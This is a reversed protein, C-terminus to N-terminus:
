KREAKEKGQELAIEAWTPARCLFIRASGAILTGSITLCDGDGSFIVSGGTAKGGPSSLSVTKQLTTLQHFRTVGMGDLIALTLGDPSFGVGATALQQGIFKALEAGSTADWLRATTDWGATAILRDDPSFALDAVEWNHGILSSQKKQSQYDWIEVKGSPLAIALRTGRNSFTMKTVPIQQDFPLPVEQGNQTSWARLYGQVSPRRRTFSGKTTILEGGPAFRIVGIANTGTQFALRRRRNPLDWVELSGNEYGVALESGNSSLAGATISDPAEIGWSDVEHRAVPDWFSVVGNSSLTVLRTPGSLFGLAIGETKELEDPKSPTLDWLRVTSDRAGSVLIPSHPATALAWIGNAHGLLDGVRKGAPVSWLYLAEDSAGATILLQDDLSFGLAGTFNPHAQWSTVITFDSAKRLEVKGNSGGAAFWAGDSSFAMSDVRSLYHPAVKLLEGTALEVIRFSVPDALVCREGDLSSIGNECEPLSFFRTSLRTVDTLNLGGNTGYILWPKGAALFTPPLTHDMERIVKWDRTRWVVVRRTDGVALFEADSSLLLKSYIYREFGRFEKKLQRTLYDWIRVTGDSGLAAIFDLKPSIVVQGVPASAEITALQQGRARQQLYRWEWGRLDENPHDSNTGQGPLYRDLLERAIGLNTEALAQDALNMDALYARLRTRRAETQAEHRLKAEQTQAQSAEVSKADASARLTEQQKEAKRARLAQGTSVIIGVILTIVVVAAM